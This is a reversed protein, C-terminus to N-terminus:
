VPFGIHTDKSLGKNEVLPGVDIIQNNELWIHRLSTLKSLISIDCINNNSLTLGQLKKLSALPTIDSIECSTLKLHTLKRLNSLPALDAIPNNTLEFVELNKLRSLARFNNIQSQGLRLYRLNIMGGIADIQDIPNNTLEISYLKPLKSLPGADNIQNNQLEVIQLKLMNKLPAIATIKNKDLFIFQMKTLEALPSIDDIQNGSLRIVEMNKLGALPRIDVVKNKSLVIAKLTQLEALPQLNSVNNSEIWINTVNSLHRLPGIDTIKNKDLNLRDLKTLGALPSIDSILNNDLRLQKLKVLTSLPKIDQIQNGILWLLELDTCYELGDLNKIESSCAKLATFGTGALDSGKIQGTPKGISIRIAQELIKDTFHVDVELNNRLKVAHNIQKIAAAANRRVTNDQDNVAANLSNIAYPDKINGLAIVVSRRVEKDPDNIAELLPHLARHDAISGLIHAASKRLAPNGNELLGLVSDLAPEGIAALTDEARHAIKIEMENERANLLKVIFPIATKVDTNSMQSLSFSLGRLRVYPNISTMQKIKRYAVKSLKKKNSLEQFMLILEKEWDKASSMPYNYVEARLVDSTLSQNYYQTVERCRLAVQRSPTLTIKVPVVGNSGKISYPPHHVNFFGRSRTEGKLVCISGGKYIEDTGEFHFEVVFCLDVPLSSLITYVPMAVAYEDGNRGYRGTSTPKSMTDLFLFSKQVLEEIDPDYPAALSDIENSMDGQAFVLNDTFGHLFFMIVLFSLLEKNFNIRVM